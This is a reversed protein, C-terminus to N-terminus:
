RFIASTPRSPRAAGCHVGESQMLGAVAGCQAPGAGRQRDDGHMGAEDGRADRQILVVRWRASGFGRDHDVHCRNGGGRFRRRLVNGGPGFHLLGIRRGSRRLRLGLLLHLLLDRRCRQHLLGLDCRRRLLLDFRRRGRGFWRLDRGLWGLRSRHLGLGNLGLHFLLRAVGFGRRAGGRRLAGLM